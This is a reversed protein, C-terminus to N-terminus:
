FNEFLKGGKKAGKFFSVKKGPKTSGFYQCIGRLFVNWEGWFIQKSWFFHLLIRLVAQKEVIPGKLAKQDIM